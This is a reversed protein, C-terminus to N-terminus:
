GLNKFGICPFVTKYGTLDASGSKTHGNYFSQYGLHIATDANFASWSLSGRDSDQDGKGCSRLIRGGNRLCPGGSLIAKRQVSSVDQQHLVICDIHFNCLFDKGHLLYMNCFCPITLFRHFEEPLRFKVLKIGDEHIHLHRDHIATLGGAGDTGQITRICGVDRNDSHCGVCKGFINGCSHIGAHIGM